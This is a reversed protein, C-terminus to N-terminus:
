ESIMTAFYKNYWRNEANSMKWVAPIFPLHKIEDDDRIIKIVGMRYTEPMCQDPINDDPQYKLTQKTAVKGNSAVFARYIGPNLADSLLRVNQPEDDALLIKYKETNNM